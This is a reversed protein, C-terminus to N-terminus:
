AAMCEALTQALASPNEWSMSHGAAPIIKVEVGKQKLREVDDDPLSLEGFILTVPCPLSLFQTEWDPEVGAVLSSAGRWVAYPANSQPVRGVGNKRCPAHGSIGAGSVATGNTRCDLPQVDWGPM